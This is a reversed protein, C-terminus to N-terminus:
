DFRATRWVYVVLGGALVLGAAAVAGIGIWARFEIEGLSGSVIVTALQWLAALVAWIFFAERAWARRRWIAFAAVAAAIAIVLAVWISPYAEPHGTMTAGIWEPIMRLFAIAAAVATACVLVLIAHLGRDLPERDASAPESV